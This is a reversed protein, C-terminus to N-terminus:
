YSAELSTTIANAIATDVYDVTSLQVLPESTFSVSTVLGTTGNKNIIMRTKWIYLIGSKNVLGYEMGQSSISNTPKSVTVVFQLSINYTLSQINILLPKDFNKNIANTIAKKTNASINLKDQTISMDNDKITVSDVGSTLAENIANVLNTKDETGLDTLEGTITKVDDLTIGGSASIVNGDITINEGAEYQIAGDKGPAGQIAPIDVFKGTEDKIKLIAM